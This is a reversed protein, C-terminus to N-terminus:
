ISDDVQSGGHSHSSPLRAVMKSDIRVLLRPGAQSRSSSDNLALSTARGGCSAQVHYWVGIQGSQPKQDSIM